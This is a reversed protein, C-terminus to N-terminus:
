GTEGSQAAPVKLALFRVQRERQVLLPITSGPDSARTLDMLEAVNDVPEQNYAVIVDRARIGAIAAPKGPEVQDVLV